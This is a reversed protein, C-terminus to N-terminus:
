GYYSKQHNKPMGDFTQGIKKLYMNIRAMRLLM